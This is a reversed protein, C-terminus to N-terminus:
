IDMINPDEGDSAAHTGFAEYNDAVHSRVSSDDGDTMEAFTVQRRKQKKKPRSTEIVTAVHSPPASSSNTTAAARRKLCIPAALMPLAALMPVARFRLDQARNFKDLVKLGSESPLMNTAVAEGGEVNDGADAATEQQHVTSETITPADVAVATASPQTQENTETLLRVKRAPYMCVSGDCDTLVSYSIASGSEHVEEVVGPFWRGNFNASVRDGEAFEKWLRYRSGAACSALRVHGPAGPKQCEGYKGDSNVGCARCRAFLHRKPATSDSIPENLHTADQSVEKMVRPLADKTQLQEEVLSVGGFDKYGMNINRNAKKPKTSPVAKTIICVAKRNNSRKTGKDGIASLYRHASILSRFRQGTNPEIYYSSTPRCPVSARIWGGPKGIRMKTLLAQRDQKGFGKLARGGGGEYNVSCNNLASNSKVAKAHQHKDPRRVLCSLGEAQRADDICADCYFRGVVRPLARGLGNCRPDLHFCLNCTTCNFYSEHLNRGKCACKSIGNQHAADCAEGPGIDNQEEVPMARIRDLRQQVALPEIMPQSRRTVSSPHKQLYRKVALLSKIPKRSDPPFYYMDAARTAGPPRPVTHVTWGITKIKAIFVNREQLTFHNGKRQRSSKANTAQRVNANTMNGNSAKETTTRKKIAKLKANAKAKEKHKLKLKISREVAALSKIPAGEASTFKIGVSMLEKIVDTVSPM